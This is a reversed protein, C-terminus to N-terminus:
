DDHTSILHSIKIAEEFMQILASGPKAQELMRFMNIAPHFTGLPRAIGSILM